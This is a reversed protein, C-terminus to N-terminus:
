YVPIDIPNILKVNMIDGTNIYVDKGKRFIDAISDGIFYGAGGIFGGIACIPTTLYEIGPASEGAKKGYETARKTIESAKNYNNQIAEGYGLNRYLGGDYYIKDFQAVAMELPIQRGTPTVVHDFDLYLKAGRSFYKATKVDLISGRVITGAPLIVSTGSIQENLLTAVFSDGSNGSFTSVPQLFELQFTTGAPIRKTKASANFPGAFVSTTFTFIVFMVTFIIKINKM